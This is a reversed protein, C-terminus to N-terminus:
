LSDSKDAQCSKKDATINKIFNAMEFIIEAQEKTCSSFIKELQELTRSQEQGEKGFLLMDASVNLAEALDVLVPLSLKTNATEIHSMHTVSIFVKEALQEQSYGRIRRHRRIRRGIGVYDIM